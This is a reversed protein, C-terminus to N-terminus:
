QEVCLIESNDSWGNMNKAFLELFIQSVKYVLYKSCLEPPNANNLFPKFTKPDSNFAYCPKSNLIKKNAGNPARLLRLSRSLRGDWGMWGM